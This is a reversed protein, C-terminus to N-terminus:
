LLVCVYLCLMLRERENKMKGKRCKVSVFVRKKKKGNEPVGCRRIFYFSPSTERAGFVASSAVGQGPSKQAGRPKRPGTVTLQVSM